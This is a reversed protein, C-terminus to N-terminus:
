RQNIEDLTKQVREAEEITMTPIIGSSQREMPEFDALHESHLDLITREETKRREMLIGSVLTLIGGIAALIMGIGYQKTALNIGFKPHFYVSTALVLMLLSIISSAVYLHNEKVPLRELSKGRMKMVMSTMCMAGGILVLLGALYLPGTIGLFTTGIKFQDTDSYWPMFVSIIVLFSGLLVGKEGLSLEKIKNLINMGM